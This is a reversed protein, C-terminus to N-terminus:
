VGSFVEWFDSRCECYSGPAAFVPCSGLDTVVCLGVLPYVQLPYVQQPYIQQPFSPQRYGQPPYGQQPYLQQQSSGQRPYSPQPYYQQQPGPRPYFPQQNSGQAQPLRDKKCDEGVCRQAPAPASFRNRIAKFRHSEWLPLFSRTKPCQNEKPPQAIGLDYEPSRRSRTISTTSISPADRRSAASPTSM